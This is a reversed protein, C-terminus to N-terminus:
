QPTVGLCATDNPDQLLTHIETQSRFLMEEQAAKDRVGKEDIGGVPLLAAGLQFVGVRNQRSCEAPVPSPEQGATHIPYGTEPGDGIAFQEILTAKM